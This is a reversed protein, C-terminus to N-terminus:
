PLNRGVSGIEKSFGIYIEEAKPICKVREGNQALKKVFLHSDYGELNHFYYYDPKKWFCCETSKEFNKIDYETL